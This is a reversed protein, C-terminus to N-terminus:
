ENALTPKLWIVWARLSNSPGMLEAPERAVYSAVALVHGWKKTAMGPRALQSLHTVPELLNGYADRWQDLTQGECKGVPSGGTNLVAVDITGLATEFDRTLKVRSDADTLNVAFGLVMSGRGAIESHAAAVAVPDRGCVVVSAGERALRSATAFGLGHSSACVLAVKGNIELDM